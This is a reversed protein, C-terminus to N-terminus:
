QLLGPVIPCRLFISHYLSSYSDLASDLKHKQLNLHHVLYHIRRLIGLNPLMNICYYKLFYKIIESALITSIGRTKDIKRDIEWAEDSNYM